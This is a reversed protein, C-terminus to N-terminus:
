QTKQDMFTLYKDQASDKKNGDPINISYAMQPLGHRYVAVGSMLM